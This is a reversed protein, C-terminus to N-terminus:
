LDPDQLLSVSKWGSELESRLTRTDWLVESLRAQLIQFDSIGLKLVQNAMLGIFCDKTESSESALAGVTAMWLGMPGTHNRTQLNNQLAQALKTRLDTFAPTKFFVLDSFLLAAARFNSEPLALLRYQIENCAANLNRSRDETPVSTEPHALHFLVTRMLSLM